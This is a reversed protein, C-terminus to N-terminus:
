DGLLQNITDRLATMQGITGRIWVEQSDSRIALPLAKIGRDPMDIRVRYTPVVKKLSEDLLREEPVVSIEDVIPYEVTM